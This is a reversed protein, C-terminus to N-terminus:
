LCFSQCVPARRKSCNAKKVSPLFSLFVLLCLRTKKFLNSQQFPAVVLPVLAVARSHSQSKRQWNGSGISLLIRDSMKASLLRIVSPGISPVLLAYSISLIYNNFHHFHNIYCKVAILNPSSHNSFFIMIPQRIATLCSRSEDNIHRNSKTWMELEITRNNVIRFIRTECSM